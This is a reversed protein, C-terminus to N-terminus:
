AAHKSRYPEVQLGVPTQTANQATLQRRLAGHSALIAEKSALESVSLCMWIGQQISSDAAPAFGLSALAQRPSAAFQERFGDDTGLKHLLADVIVEPLKFPM